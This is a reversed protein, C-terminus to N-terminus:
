RRKGFLGKFLGGRGGGGSTVPATAPRAGSGGVQSVAQAMAGEFAADQKRAQKQQKSMKKLVTATDALRLKFERKWVTFRQKLNALEREPNLDLLANALGSSAAQKVEGIFLADDDLVASRRDFEAQLSNVASAGAPLKATMMKGEGSDGAISGASDGSFAPSMGNADGGLARRATALSERMASLQAAWQEESEELRVAYDERLASEHRLQETLVAVHRHLAERELMLQAVAPDAEAEPSMAAMMNGAAVLSAPSASSKAAQWDPNASVIAAPATAPPPSPPSPPADGNEEFLANDHLVPTDAHYGDAPAGARAEAEQAERDEAEQAERAERQQVRKRVRLNFLWRRVVMQADIVNLYDENFDTRAKMGRAHAQIVVAAVNRMRLEAAHRRASHGRVLAQLAILGARKRLFSRRAAAGRSMAQTTVVAGVTRRRLDEIVGLSGARLFVKTNGCQYAEQPVSFHRLVVRTASAADGAAAKKQLLPPLLFLYRELFQTYAYRTPYGARSIRVVELVGCCRLQNLVLRDDYDNPAQRPNPKICRVFHLDTGDLLTVLEALQMRFRSGVTDSGKSSARRGGGGAGEDAGTRVLAGLAPTLAHNAGTLAAKVDNSLADRNKELWGTTDYMVDGAFHKVEFATQSRKNKRFHESSKEFNAAFKECLTVDTTKPMVCEEDLLALLGAPKRAELMDVCPQNDVWEITTWDIAEAEYEAQELKFLHRNFQNQLKENALNICLQEFSNKDFCEFGYIDLVNVESVGGACSVGRKAKEESEALRENIRDCIWTFLSSYLTKGLADRTDAAQAESLTQEILEGRVSISRQCLAKALVAEDCGLLAAANGLADGPAMEAGEGGGAFNVEGLWLVAAVVDMAADIEVDGLGVCRMAKKLTGYMEADDVGPIEFCGSAQLARFGDVPRLKLRAREDDSAGACLQYFVHYSREGEAQSSVRSKELLYTDLGAGIISPAVASGSAPRAFHIRILKGFRSSNNNRLTKANGFAELVPNIDLVQAEVDDVEMGAGGVGSGALMALYQMAHKTSETKGAGSEGSIVLSQAAGEGAMAMFARHATAFIHPENQPVRGEAFAAMANHDYLEPLRQFPNVAVLVPGAATYISKGGVYRERLNALVSPENLYTLAALDPSGALVDPNAPWVRAAPVEEAGRGGDAMRVKCTGEAGHALLAAEAWGGESVSVWVRAGRGLRSVADFSM